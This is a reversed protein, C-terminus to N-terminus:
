DMDVFLINRDNIMLFIILIIYGLWWILVNQVSLQYMGREKLILLTKIILILTPTILLKVFTVISSLFSGYGYSIPLILSLIFLHDLTDMRGQNRYKKVTDNEDYLNDDELMQNLERELLMREKLGINNDENQLEEVINRTFSMSYYWPSINLLFYYGIFVIMILWQTLAWKSIKTM